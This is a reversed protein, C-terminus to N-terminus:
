RGCWRGIMASWNRMEGGGGVAMLLVEDVQGVADRLGRTRAGEKGRPVCGSDLSGCTFSFFVVLHGGGFGGGELGSLGGDRRRVVADVILVVNRHVVGPVRNDPFLPHATHHRPKDPLFQSLTIRSFAHIVQLLTTDQPTLQM